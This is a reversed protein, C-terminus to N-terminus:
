PPSADSSSGEGVGASLAPTDLLVKTIYETKYKQYREEADELRRSLDGVLVTVNTDTEVEKAIGLRDYGVRIL